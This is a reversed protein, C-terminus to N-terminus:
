EKLWDAVPVGGHELWRLAIKKEAKECSYVIPVRLEPLEIYPPPSAMPVLKQGDETIIPTSDWEGREYFRMRCPDEWCGTDDTIIEVRRGNKTMSYVTEQIWDKQM